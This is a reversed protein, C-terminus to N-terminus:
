QDAGVDDLALAGVLIGALGEDGGSDLGADVDLASRETASENHRRESAAASIKAIGETPGSGGPDVRCHRGPAFDVISPQIEARHHQRGYAQGHLTRPGPDITRDETSVAYWSPKSRWAAQTTKGTLLAKHFPERVAYLVKAKAEPLDGAFDRLFAAETLRGEDGDFVIGASAPPTPFTKALTTYDEGADPCACCCLCTCIRESARGSRDGAHRLFFARGSGGVM